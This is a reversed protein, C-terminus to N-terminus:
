KKEINFFAFDVFSGFDKGQPIKLYGPARVNFATKFEIGSLRVNSNIVVENTVGDGQLVSISSVTDIGGYSKALNKLEDYSYPNGNNVCSIVPTVRDDNRNKLVLAANIIDTLEANTLWPDSKKCSVGDTKYWAKYLWPSGGKGEWARDIFNSGGNGDTTDWGTSLVYGGTTSSYYTIVDELIQGRTEDVAQKWSAPPNSAKSSSFVQCAQTTCISKGQIKYRYAYTRAAVAQAKLANINWKSPMEAIGLLYKGEFDMSTGNVIINGSTDKNIPEKGYYAKLIQKYDQGNEARGRAGYQSMGKRHTYGGFSFVAFSGIPASERFGKISANYDDSLEVDGVSTIFSGAKLALIAQQKAKIQGFFSETKQVEGELFEAQKDIQSRLGALSNQSKKLAEKDSKLTSINQSISNILQWDQTATNRRLALGQNFDAASKSSFLLTLVTFERGTKYMDRLRNSLIEEQVDLDGERNVIEKETLKLKKEIDIIKASISALQKQFSALDSKNKEHADKRSDYEKQLQAIQCDYDTAPCNQAYVLFVFRLLCLGFLFLFIFFIKKKRVETLKLM